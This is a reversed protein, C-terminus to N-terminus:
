IKVREFSVEDGAVTFVIYELKKTASTELVPVKPPTAPPSLTATTPSSFFPHQPANLARYFSDLDRATGFWGLFGLFITLTMPNPQFIAAVIILLYITPISVFTNIMWMIVDDVIGGFYAAITGVTVGLVLAIAAAVLAMWSSWAM